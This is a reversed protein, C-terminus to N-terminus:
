YRQSKLLNGLQSYAAKNDFCKNIVELFLILDLNIVEKGLVSKSVKKDDSFARLRNFYQVAFSILGKEIVVSLYPTEFFKEWYSAFVPM